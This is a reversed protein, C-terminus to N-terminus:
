YHKRFCNERNEGAAFYLWESLAACDNEYWDRLTETAITIDSESIERGSSWYGSFQHPQRVVAIVTDRFAGASVRNVIVEAVLRKDHPKDEYCEGALTQAIAMVDAETWPVDEAAMARPAFLLLAILLVAAIPRPWQVRM